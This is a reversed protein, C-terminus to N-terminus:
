SQKEKKYKDIYNNIYDEVIIGGLTLVNMRERHAIKTFMNKAEESMKFTVNVTKTEEPVDDFDINEVAM